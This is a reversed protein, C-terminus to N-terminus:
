YSYRGKMKFRRAREKMKELRRARDKERGKMKELRRGRDSETGKM